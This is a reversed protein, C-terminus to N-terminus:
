ICKWIIRLCGTPPLRLTVKVTHVGPYTLLLGPEAPQLLFAEGSETSLTWAEAPCLARPPAQNAPGAHSPTNHTTLGNLLHM